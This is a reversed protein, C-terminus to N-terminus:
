QGALYTQQGELLARTLAEHREFPQDLSAHMDSATVENIPSPGCSKCCCPPRSSPAETQMTPM